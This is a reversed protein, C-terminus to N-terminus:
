LLGRSMINEFAGSGSGVAFEFNFYDFPRDYTYGRKGPLGYAM